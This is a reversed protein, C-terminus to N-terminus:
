PRGNEREIDDLEDIEFQLKRQERARIVFYAAIWAAVLTLFPMGNPLIRRGGAIALAVIM